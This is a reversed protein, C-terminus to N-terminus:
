IGITALIIAKISHMGNETSYLGDINSSSSLGIVYDYKSAIELENGNYKNLLKSFNEDSLYARNDLVGRDYIIYVDRDEPLFDVSEEAVKEKATQMRYVMDQFKIIKESRSQIPIGNVSMLSATEPVTILSVNKGKFYDQISNVITTKGGRPGGTLVIKKVEM